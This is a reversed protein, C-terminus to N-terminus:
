TRCHSIVKNSFTMWDPDKYIDMASIRCTSTNEEKSSYTGNQSECLTKFLEHDEASNSVFEKIAVDSNLLVLYSHTDFNNEDCAVFARNEKTSYTLSGNEVSVQIMSQIPTGGSDSSSPPLDPLDVGTTLIVNNAAANLIHELNESNGISGTSGSSPNSGPESKEPDVPNVPITIQISSSSEVITSSSSNSSPVDTVNVSTSSAPTPADTSSDAAITNGQEDTGAVNTSCASFVSILCLGFSVAKVLKTATSQKRANM